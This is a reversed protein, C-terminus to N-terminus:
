RRKKVLIVKIKKDRVIKLFKQYNESNELQKCIIVKKVKLEEMVTLLGGVHDQDFHSIIMYDIKTYGRDLIYPLVTKKGVDFESSRNGGGDILITKKFPTVIFTCDGQGVDVFYINLDIPILKFIIIILISVVIIKLYKNKNIFMRYKVLAVMNKVRIQTNNLNRSNYIKYIFNILLLIIYYLIITLIKPTAFYIKSFPIKSFNSIYILIQILYTLIYSIIKTFPYYILSSIIFIFSLILVPGIIISILLNAILFYTNFTNFHYIMLPLISIQASLTISLIEQVKIIVKLNTISIKYRWKRNKIKISKLINKINKNLLIIGITGIYSFQLGINILMFPNYIIIILLSLSISTAIDNKRYFIESGLLIISMLTARVISPSFGIIFMYCVLFMITFTIRSRKGIRKKLFLNIAIVIYSVHMGSIALVHSVGSDKFSNKLEEQIEDKDGLIIGKIISAEDKELINDINEQLKLCVKNSINLILNGKNEGITEVNNCKVTGYIKLTKLYEKYNFGQYNRSIEPEIFEGEFKIKDGYKLNKLLKKNIKLYLYTNIYKKNKNANIIKIKYINNYVKETKNSVIIAEGQIENVGQYLYDYKNNQFITISNSIISVFIIFIIMKKNIIIKLYKFYRKPNLFKFKKRKTKIKIRILYIAVIPIYFLVISNKFYLGM